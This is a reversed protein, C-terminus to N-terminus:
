LIATGAQFRRLPSSPWFYGATQGPFVPQRAGHTDSFQNSFFFLPQVKWQIQVKQNLNETELNASMTCNEADSPHYNIIASIKQRRIISQRWIDSRHKTM